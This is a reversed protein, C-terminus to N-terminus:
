KRKGGLFEEILNIIEDNSTKLNNTHRKIDPLSTYYKRGLKRRYAKRYAITPKSMHHYPTPTFVSILNNRQNATRVVRMMNANKHHISVVEHEYRPLDSFRAEVPVDTNRPSLNKVRTDYYSMIKYKKKKGLFFKVLLIAITDCAIILIPLLNNKKM